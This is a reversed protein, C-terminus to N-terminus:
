FSLKDLFIASQFQKVFNGNRVLRVYSDSLKIDPHRVGVSLRQEVASGRVFGLFAPDDIRDHPRLSRAGVAPPRIMETSTSRPSVIKSMTRFGGEVRNRANIAFEHINV